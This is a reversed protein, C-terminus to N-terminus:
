VEDLPTITFLHSTSFRFVDVVLIVDSMRGSRNSIQLLLSRRTANELSLFVVQMMTRNNLNLHNEKM